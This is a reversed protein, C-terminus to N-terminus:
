DENYRKDVYYRKPRAAEAMAEDKEADTKLEGLPKDPLGGTVITYERGHQDVKIKPAYSLSKSLRKRVPM